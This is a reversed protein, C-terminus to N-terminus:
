CRWTGIGHWVHEIERHDYQPVFAEVVAQMLAVGAQDNLRHGIERVKESFAFYPSRDPNTELCLLSMLGLQSYDELSPYLLSALTRNWCKSQNAKARLVQEQRWRKADPIDPYLNAELNGVTEIFFNGLSPLWSKPMSIKYQAAIAYIESQPVEDLTQLLDGFTFASPKKPETIAGFGKKARRRRSSIGM